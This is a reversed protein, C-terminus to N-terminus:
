RRKRTKTILREKFRALERKLKHSLQDIATYLDRDIAEARLLMGPVEINGEARFIDGKHHHHTTLELEFRARIIRHYFRDLHEIKEALHTRIGETIELNTGKLSYEM